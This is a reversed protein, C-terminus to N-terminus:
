EATHITHIRRSSNVLPTGSPHQPGSIGDQMNVRRGIARIAECLSACRMGQGYEARRGEGREM